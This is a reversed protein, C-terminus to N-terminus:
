GCSIREIKGSKDLFFNVRSEIYDMTMMMGPHLIRTRKPLEMSDLVSGDQGILHAYSDASCATASGGIQGTKVPRETAEMQCGLTMAILLFGLTRAIINKSSCRVM